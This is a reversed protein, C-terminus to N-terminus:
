LDGEVVAFDGVANTVKGNADKTLATADKTGAAIVKKHDLDLEVVIHNITQGKTSTFKAPLATYTLEQIGPQLKAADGTLSSGYVDIVITGTTAVKDANSTYTTVAATCYSNIIQQDKSEKSKNIYPIVQTGVIGVLIAM